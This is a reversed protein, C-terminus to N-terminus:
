FIHASVSHLIIISHITYQIRESLPAGEKWEDRERDFCLEKSFFMMWCTLWEMFPADDVNGSNRSDENCM